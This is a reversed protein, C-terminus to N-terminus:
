LLFVTFSTFMVYLRLSVLVGSIFQTLTINAVAQIDVQKESLIQVSNQAILNAATHEIFHSINQLSPTNDSHKFDIQSAAISNQFPTSNETHKYEPLLRTPSSQFRQSHGLISCVASYDSIIVPTSRRCPMNWSYSHQKGKRLQINREESPIIFPFHAYISNHEFHNPFATLFLKYLVHGDDVTADGKSMAYGWNTLNAPTYDVTYFRDGRVASIGDSILATATTYGCCLGQGPVSHEKTKEVLLGPYLEVSDPSGYLAKLHKAVTPDPNISEFTDYRKLKLTERFENLTCVNWKRAQMIGLIEVARLAVPVSNAGLSHAVDDIATSVMSVLEDDNYQGGPQRIFGAFERKLPDADLSEEISRLGSVLEHPGLDEAKKDFLKQYSESVWMEDAVSLGGHWRYALNFEVTVVNGQSPEKHKNIESTKIERPDIVYDTDTRDLSLITRIYDFVIANVYYASVVLRSTQFLDEDYKSQEEATADPEPPPFRNNENISSRSLTM